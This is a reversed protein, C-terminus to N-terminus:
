YESPPVGFQKKFSTSFHSLTSFGTMDAIESVNYRHERLLQAARNLKYRKFLVSPNEGTLGKTKYYLKTRSIKMRQTISNIDIESNALESEMIEYLEDMFAKDRGGLGDEEGIHDTRTASALRERLKDRNGIQSGLLALLYNPDFPKTVYADAGCNLGEVQDDIATKATVLVVPIHSILIDDKIMRCLEYGSKGPMMVDSLVLDAPSERLTTFATDVDFRCVVNYLPSLMEKLYHAVDVDDDVVMVVKRGDEPAAESDIELKKLAGSAFARPDTGSAAKESEAYSGEGSPLTLTFVAGTGDTRNAATLSGHHIRALERAYYLGIGTGLNYSGGGSGVQYYREFIKEIHEESIGPGTDSVRVTALGSDDIDFEFLITGGRPTYKTANSLLNYCIKDLKDEDVWIECNEQLGRVELTIDKSEASHRFTDALDELYPIVDMKRVSLRLTDNELKNFDLMQNVLRLMRHVNREVIGLSSRVSEDGSEAMMQKVPGAIMTLPTRFEHSVNAFFDMNMKNIRREQEKEQVAKRAAEQERAVSIRLRVFLAAVALFVLSYLCIALPSGLPAPKVVINMANEAIRTRGDSLTARVRFTYRGPKINGYYAETSSQADIWGRDHGEMTYHYRLRDFESYDLAAFGISFSRENHRFTVSETQWTGSDVLRGHIKLTEFVLPVNIHRDVETPNFCSIGHTGGFVLSGDALICRSRDYFQNGGIGDEKFYNAFEGNERDLRGLGHQTSVWIDGQNDELIAEIDDCPAGEVPVIADAASDYRLLGNAVTGIWIDGFSDQLIDTPIFVSRKVCDGCCRTFPEFDSVELTEANIVKLPTNFAAVMIRGDKLPLVGPTFGGTTCVLEFAQAGPKKVYVQSFVTSVWVSGDSGLAMSMPGLIDSEEVKTVKGSAYRCRIVKSATASAVWVSGDPCATVYSAESKKAALIGDTLGLDIHVFNRQVDYVFLGDNMTCVWVNGATDRAVNEVSRNELLGTLPSSNFPEKYAYVVEFGQDVSGIWLNGHSDTFMTSIKFGPAKFPFEPDTQSALRGASPDYFFLGSDDSYLMLGNLYPHALAIRAKRLTGDASIAQPPNEFSRTITNFVAIERNYGSIIVRGDPLNCFNSVLGGELPFKERQTMAVANFCYLGSFGCVWLEGNPSTFASLIWDGLDEAQLVPRFDGEKEEYRLLASGANGMVTGSPTEFLAFMNRNPHEYGVRSVRGDSTVLCPGNVTSAWLRGKSDCLVAKVQNDPLSVTDAENYYQHYNGGALKDLGRFTAMWIHGSADECISNVQGNSLDSSIVPSGGPEVYRYGSGACSVLLALVTIFPLVKKLASNM